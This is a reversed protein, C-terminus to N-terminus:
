FVPFVFVEVVAAFIVLIFSAAFLITTDLIVKDFRPTGYAEKELGVSVIAGAVAALFFALFELSAHPIYKVMVSTKGLFALFVGFVSANWTLVTLAGSGFVFSLILCFLLVRVNNALISGFLNQTGSFQGVLGAAPQTFVEVQRIFLINRSWDPMALYWLLYSIAVGMFFLFYIQLIQKNRIVMKRLSSVNEKVSEGLSLIRHLFPLAAIVTFMISVISADHAFVLVGVWIGITSFCIGLLLAYLVNKAVWEPKILREVVM